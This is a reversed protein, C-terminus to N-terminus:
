LDHFIDMNFNCLLNGVVHWQTKYFWSAVQRYRYGKYNGMSFMIKKIEMRTVERTFTQFTKDPILPFTGNVGLLLIQISTVLSMLSPIQLTTRQNWVIQPMIEKVMRSPMMPTGRVEFNCSVGELSSIQGREYTFLKSNKNKPSYGEEEHKADVKEKM